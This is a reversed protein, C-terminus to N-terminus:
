DSEGRDPPAPSESRTPLRSVGITVRMAQTCTLCQFDEEHAYGEDVVVHRCDTGLEVFETVDCHPCHVRVKFPATALGSM